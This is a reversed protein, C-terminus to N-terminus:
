IYEGLGITELVELSIDNHDFLALACAEETDIEDDFYGIWPADVLDASSLGLKSVLCKDVEKMWVDFSLM